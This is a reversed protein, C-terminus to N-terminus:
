DCVPALNGSPERQTRAILELGLIAVPNADQRHEAPLHKEQAQWVLAAEERSVQLLTQGIEAEAVQRQEPTMAAESSAADVADIEAELKKLLADRHAWAFLAVTDPRLAFGLMPQPANVIDVQTRQEPFIIQGGRKVLALVNPKGRAALEEIQERAKEKCYQVPLPAREIKLLEQKLDNVRARIRQLAGLLDEGKNLKPTPADRDELMCGMPRGDRLWRECVQLPREIAHWAPIKAERLNQLRKAAAAAKEVEKAATVTRPDALDLGLGGFQPHNTLRTLRDDAKQREVNLERLEEHSPVQAHASRARERLSLLKEKAKPPLLEALDQQYQDHVLSLTPGLLEEDSAVEFHRPYEDDGKPLNFGTMKAAELM